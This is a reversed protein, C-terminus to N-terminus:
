RFNCCFGREIQKNCLRNAQGPRFREVVKTHRILKAELAKVSIKTAYQSGGSFKSKITNRYKNAEHKLIFVRAPV